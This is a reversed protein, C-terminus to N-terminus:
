LRRERQRERNRNEQRSVGRAACDEQPVRDRPREVYIELSRVIRIVMLAWGMVDPDAFREM